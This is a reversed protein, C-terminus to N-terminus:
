NSNLVPQLPEYERFDVSAVESVGMEQMFVGYLVDVAAMTAKNHTIIIFQSEKSFKKVIRNFKEINADDLPADVEDFICFPAPKYLYLSFLLAIATLTKEGGSLQNLTRPRKGKPKAIIEIGSELPNEPDELVVDCTDGESFLSTFVEKFYEKVVAFTDVFRQTAIKEIEDITRLLTEQSQLIDEKQQSITDYRAKMESFAEIAMTNVEGFNEIKRKLRDHKEELEHLPVDTREYNELDKLTMNFEIKLRESVSQLRFDQDHLKEKLENILFQSQHMSRRVASISEETETITGRKAYFAKEVGTLAEERQRKLEYKEVLKKELDSVTDELLVQNQALETLKKDNGSHKEAAKELDSSLYTSEGQLGDLLNQHRILEIHQANKEEAARSLFDAHSQLSSEDNERDSLLESLQERIGAIKNQSESILKHQLQWESEQERTEKELDQVQKEMNALKMELEARALKEEDLRIKLRDINGDEGSSELKSIENRISVLRADFQSNQQQLSQIEKQLKELNKKRGLKKGEFLGVSGGSVSHRTTSFSGNKDIITFDDGGMDETLMAVDRFDLETIYVNYLLNGLLSYYKEEYELVDLARIFGEKDLTVPTKEDINQLVFFNAKGKQAGHLLSIADFADEQDEVIYHNLLPELYREIALKYQDPVYIIDSLLVADSKWSKNLYKISEPFGELSDVMSKVLDYENTRADLRREIRDKEQKLNMRDQELEAIRAKRRGSSHQLEELQNQLDRLGGDKERADSKMRTRQASLDSVLKDRFEKNQKLREIQNEAIAIRKEFDFREEELKQKQQNILDQDTKVMEYREKAREYSELALDYKGSLSQTLQGVTGLKEQVAKLKAELDAQQKGLIEQEAILTAKKQKSFEIQQASLRKESELNRLEDLLQNIEKQFSSLEEENSLIDKKAEQLEAELKRLKVETSRHRDQEEEIQALIRKRNATVEDFQQLNLQISATKYQEKIKLFREVRRAQKELEQLNNGIEFLLDEVRDLDANTSKLKNLTEKKRKKYKSIGSAQEFMRRRSGDSDTLIDDVMNLAIIAYSDSGIGTDVFLSKVDKLRCPIDNIRYESEGNRYLLRSIAVENYESPILNHTNDFHLTVQALGSKKRKSTGNFLVDSMADLRLETTKQEGLVWRIADVINSKGSGNPGV